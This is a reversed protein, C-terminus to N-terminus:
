PICEIGKTEDLIFPNPYGLVSKERFRRSGVGNRRDNTDGRDM